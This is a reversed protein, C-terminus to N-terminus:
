DLELLFNLRPVKNIYAIDTGKPGLSCEDDLLSILGTKGEILMVCASNDEFAVQFIFRVTQIM